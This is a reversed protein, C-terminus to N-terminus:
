KGSRGALWSMGGSALAGAMLLGIAPQWLLPWLPMWADLLASSHLAGKEALGAVFWALTVLVLFFDAILLKDVADKIPSSSSSSAGADPAPPAPAGPKSFASTPAKGSSSSAAAAARQFREMDAKLIDSM